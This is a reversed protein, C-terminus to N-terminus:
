AGGPRRLVYKVPFLSDHAISNVRKVWEPFDYSVTLTTDNELKFTAFDDGHKPVKDIGNASHLFKLNTSCDTKFTWELRVQEMGKAYTTGTFFYYACQGNFLYVAYEDAFRLECLYSNTTAVPVWVFKPLDSISKAVSDTVPLSKSTGTDETAPNNRRESSSCSILFISVILGTFKM